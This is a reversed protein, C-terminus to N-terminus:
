KSLLQCVDSHLDKGYQIGTPLFEIYNAGATVEPWHPLSPGNPNGTKVFNAWYEQLPPWTLPTANAPAADFVYDLEANHEVRASGPRRLGFEYRWVKQHAAMESKILRYSPCRFIFDTLIQTGVNGLVPDDAPQKDANLGYLKLAADANQAYLQTVMGRLQDPPGDFGFEQTINGIIHPIHSVNGSKYLDNNGVPIVWGDASTEMWLGGADGGPPTLKTVAELLVNVPVKRLQDLATPGRSIQLVEMLNIGIKENDAQTRPPGMVGSEQIAKSFLGVALPSRMLQGIDMAGASQGAITVRHPDGGFAAINRQVWKLAAIQDLLGYNGSSHHPSESTLEPSALFGFVGLRYEISVIVVGHKYILSDATGHGAGARNSGGHIWFLVPLKENSKHKPEHVALYLCDEVSEATEKVNWGEFSQACARGPMDVDRVGKWPTVPAPAQWRLADVPPAAYPITRFIASGDPLDAGRVDGDATHREAGEIAVSFLVTLGLATLSLKNM